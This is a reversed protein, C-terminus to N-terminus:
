STLSKGASANKAPSYLFALTYVYINFLSFITCFEITNRYNKTFNEFLSQRFPDMNMRLLGAVVLTGIVIFMFIISLKIRIDSLSISTKLSFLSISPFFSAEHNKGYYPMNKLEACARVILYLLFLM